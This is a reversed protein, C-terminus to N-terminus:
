RHHMLGHKGVWFVFGAFDLFIYLFLPLFQSRSSRVRQREM